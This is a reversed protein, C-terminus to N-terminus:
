GTTFFPAGLRDVTPTPTIIRSVTDYTVMGADALFPVDVHHLTVRTRREDSRTPGRGEANAKKRALRSALESLQVAGNDRLYTLVARRRWDTVVSAMEPSSLDFATMDTREDRLTSNSNM